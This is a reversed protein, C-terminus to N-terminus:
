FNEKNLLEKLNKNFIFPKEIKFMDILDKALEENLLFLQHIIYEQAEKDFVKLIDRNRELGDARTIYNNILDEFFYHYRSKFPIVNEQKMNIIDIVKKM